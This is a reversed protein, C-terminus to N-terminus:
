GTRWREPQPRWHGQNQTEWDRDSGTGAGIDSRVEAGTRFDVNGSADLVLFKDTDTGANVVDTLNFTEEVTVLAGTVLLKRTGNAVLGVTHNSPRYMGTNEDGVFGYDATGANTSGVVLIQKDVSTIDALFRIPM